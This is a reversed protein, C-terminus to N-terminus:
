LIVISKLDELGFVVDDLGFALEALRELMFLHFPTTLYGLFSALHTRELDLTESINLLFSRYEPPRSAQVNL